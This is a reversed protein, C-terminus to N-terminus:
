KQCCPCLKIFRKVHKRMNPGQQNLKRLETLTAEVGDHGVTSNHVILLKEQTIEDIDFEDLLCIMENPINEKDSIHIRSLIDV